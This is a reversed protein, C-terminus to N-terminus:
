KLENDWRKECSEISLLEQRMWRDDVSFSDSFPTLTFSGSPAVAELGTMFTSMSISKGHAANAILNCNLNRILINEAESASAEQQNTKWWAAYISQVLQIDLQFWTRFLMEILKWKVQMM